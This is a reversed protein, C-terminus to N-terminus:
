LKKVIVSLIRKTTAREIQFLMGGFPVEEGQRPIHEMQSLLFGAITAEEEPLNLELETNVTKIPTKGYVRYVGNGKLPEVMLTSVEFEDYIEGFIEEEIDELTVIGETGGYEDLVIAIQEDKDLFDRLLDDLRRSEPVFIPNRILKHYDEELNLFVDKTYLVGSINDLSERYVPYKSHKRLRLFELVQEQSWAVDIGLVDVRATVIESVWTEKFGLVHSIMDEEDESIHGEKRSILLATKLEADSYGKHKSSKILRSSVWIVIRESLYVIPWFIKALFILVPACLLALKESTYIAIAKPLIEGLLLIVLGSILIALWLGEEGFVSVFVSTSLASFSINVLMNGFVIVSLLRTPRNLLNRVKKASSHKEQLRRLRVNSLSFLATESASFFASLGILLIFLM